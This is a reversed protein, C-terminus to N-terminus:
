RGRIRARALLGTALPDGPAERLAEEFHQVAERARAAALARMGEDVAVHYRADSLGRKAQADDPAIKVAGAFFEVAEAYRRQQLAAAGKRMLADFEMQLRMLAEQRDVAARAADRAKARATEDGPRLAEAQAYWQHAQEFRERNMAADGRSLLRDYEAEIVAAGRKAASLLKRTEEEDPFLKLAQTLLPVARDPRRALLALQARGLLEAYLIQRDRESGRVDALPPKDQKVEAGHADAIRPKERERVPAARHADAAALADELAQNVAPDDPALQKAITLSRVAAAFEKKRLATKGQRLLRAIEAQRKREEQRVHAAVAEAALISTQAAILGSKADADDPNLKLAERYLKEAQAYQKKALAGEAQHLLRTLALRNTEERERVTAASPPTPAAQRAAGNTRSPEGSRSQEGVTAAPDEAAAHPHSVYMGTIAASGLLLAGALLAAIRAALGAADMRRPAVPLPLAERMLMTFATGCRPCRVRKSEPLSAPSRLAAHCHPCALTRSPM